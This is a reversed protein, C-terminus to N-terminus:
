MENPIAYFLLIPLQMADVYLRTFSAFIEHLTSVFGACVVAHLTMMVVGRKITVILLFIIFLILLPSNRSSGHSNRNM